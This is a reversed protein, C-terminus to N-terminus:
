SSDVACPTRSTLSAVADAPPASMIIACLKTLRRLARPVLYRRAFGDIDALAALLLRIRESTDRIKLAKRLRAGIAARMRAARNIRRRFGAPAANRTPRRREKIKTIEVARILILAHVLSAIRGLSLFRYRQRIRRRGAYADPSCLILAVWALM